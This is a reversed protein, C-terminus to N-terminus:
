GEVEVAVVSICGHRIGIQTVKYSGTRFSLELHERLEEGYGTCLPRIRGSDEMLLVEVEASHDVLDLFEYLGM